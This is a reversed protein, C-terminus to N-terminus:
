KTPSCAAPQPVIFPPTRVFKGTPPLPMTTVIGHVYPLSCVSKTLSNFNCLFLYFFAKAAIIDDGFLCQEM